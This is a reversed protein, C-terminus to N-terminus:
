TRYEECGISQSSELKPPPLFGRGRNGRGPSTGFPLSVKAGSGPPPLFGEREGEFFVNFPVGKCSGLAP